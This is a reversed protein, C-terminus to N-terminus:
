MDELIAVLHERATEASAKQSSTVSTGVVNDQITNDLYEILKKIESESHTRAGVEYYLMDPYHVAMTQWWESDMSISNPDINSKVNGVKYAEENAVDELGM